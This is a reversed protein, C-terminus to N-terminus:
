GELNNAVVIQKQGSPVFIKAGKKERKSIVIPSTKLKLSSSGNRSSDSSEYNKVRQPSYSEM